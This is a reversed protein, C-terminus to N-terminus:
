IVDGEPHPVPCRRVFAFAGVNFRRRRRKRM